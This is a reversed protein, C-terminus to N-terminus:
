INQEAARRPLVGSSSADLRLVPGAVVAMTATSCPPKRSCAAGGRCNVHPGFM